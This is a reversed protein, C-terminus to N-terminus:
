AVGPDEARPGVVSLEAPPSREAGLVVYDGLRPENPSLVVCGPSRCPVSRLVMSVM